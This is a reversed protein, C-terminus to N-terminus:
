LYEGRKLATQTTEPWESQPVDDLTSQCRPCFYLHRLSYFIGGGTDRHPGISEIFRWDHGERRCVTRPFLKGMIGRINM